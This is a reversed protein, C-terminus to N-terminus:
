HLESTLNGKRNHSGARRGIACFKSPLIGEELGGPSPKDSVIESYRVFWGGVEPSLSIFCTLFRHAATTNSKTNDRDARAPSIVIQPM